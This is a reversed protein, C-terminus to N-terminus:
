QLKLRKTLLEPEINRNNKREHWDGLYRYQYNLEDQSFKVVREQTVRERQGVNSM